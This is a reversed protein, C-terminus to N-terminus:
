QDAPSKGRRDPYDPVSRAAVVTDPDQLFTLLRLLDPMLRDQRWPYGREKVLWM